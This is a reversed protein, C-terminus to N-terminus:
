VWAQVLQLAGGNLATKVAEFYNVGHKSATSIYSMISAYDEAGSLTRFCGSVKLKVKSFRISREAENNTFPVIWDSAFHLFQEKKEQLRELLARIKGKKPRGRQGPVREPLPNESIGKVILADYQSSFGELQAPAFATAGSAEREHRQHLIEELLSKLERSIAPIVM